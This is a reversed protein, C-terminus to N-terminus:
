QTLISLIRKIEDTVTVQTVENANWAGVAHNAIFRYLYGRTAGTPTYFVYDGVSYTKTSDYDEAIDSTEVFNDESLSASKVWIKNYDSTPQNESAQILNDRLGKVQGRIAGGITPYIYSATVPDFQAVLTVHSADWAGASHNTIFEYLNSNYFVRQGTTYSKTSDFDHEGTSSTEIAAIRADALEADGTTSGQTLQNFNDVRGDLVEIDNMVEVLSRNNGCDVNEAEVGIPISDSYTGDSNKIKIATLRDISM